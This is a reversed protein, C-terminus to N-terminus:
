ILGDNERKLENYFVDIFEGYTIGDRLILEDNILIKCEYEISSLVEYWDLPDHLLEKQMIINEGNDSRSSFYNKELGCQEILIDDIYHKLTSRKM